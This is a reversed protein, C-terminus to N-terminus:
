DLYHLVIMKRTSDGNNFWARAEYFTRSYIDQTQYGTEKTKSWNDTELVEEVSKIGDDLDTIPFEFDLKPAPDSETQHYKFKNRKIIMPETYSHKWDVLDLNQGDAGRVRVSVENTKVLLMSDIGRLQFVQISDVRGNVTVYLSDNMADWNRNTEVKECGFFALNFTHFDAEVFSPLEKIVDKPDGNEVGSKEDGEEVKDDPASCAVLFVLILFNFKRM